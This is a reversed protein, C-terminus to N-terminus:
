KKIADDKADGAAVQMEAAATLSVASLVMMAIIRM